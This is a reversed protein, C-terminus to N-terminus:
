WSIGLRIVHFKKNRDLVRISDVYFIWLLHAPLRRYILPKRSMAYEHYFCFEQWWYWTAPLFVARATCGCPGAFSHFRGPCSRKSEHLRGKCKEVCRRLSREQQIESFLAASKRLITLANQLLDRTLIWSVCFCGSPPSINERNWVAWAPVTDNELPIFTLNKNAPLQALVPEALITYGGYFALQLMLEEMSYAFKINQPDSGHRTLVQAFQNWLERDMAPVYYQESALQSRHLSAYSSLHSQRNLVVYQRLQGVQARLLSPTDELPVLELQLAFDLKKQQLRKKLTPFDVLHFHLPIAPHQEKFLLLKELIPLNEMGSMMGIELPTSCEAAAARTRRAADEALDTIRVAYEYFVQGASTLAVSHRTRQFLETELEEELLKIQQSVATQSVYHQQAAKSFSLNQAVAIFYRMQQLTM